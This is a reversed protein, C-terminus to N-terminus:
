GERWVEVYEGAPLYKAEKSWCESVSAEVKVPLGYGVIESMSDVMIQSIDAVVKKSVKGEDEPVEVIVEDHVFGVVKWGADILRYVAATAGDAALGQFPTNKHETYYCYSRVRGTRLVADRRLILRELDDGPCLQDIRDKTAYFGVKRLGLARTLESEYGKGRLLSFLSKWVNMEFDVNYDGGDRKGRGTIIRRVVAPVWAENGLCRQVEQVERNLGHALVQWMDEDLYKGLEPYVERILKNRLKAAEDVTMEVGYQLKAYQQLNIPGLGGPTGFNIAKAAQRHKGYEDPREKKWGLFDEYGVGLVLAATYAHPDRGTRLVDGLVSSGFRDLLVSALTVMEIAAYDAIVFAHGPRARFMHRFRNHKPTNQLSPKYASTRGTTKPGDYRPHISETHTTLQKTWTYIKAAEEFDLMADILPHVGRREEWCSGALSVSGKDTMPIPLDNAQCIKVLEERILGDSLAPTGSASVKRDGAKASGDKPGKVWRKVLQPIQVEMRGLAEELADWTLQQWYELRQTDVAIGNRTVQALAWNSRLLLHHSLPGWAPTIPLKREQVLRDVAPLMVKGVQHTAISDIVAYNFFGQEIKPSMLNVGILEGYRLRYPDEKNVVWTHDLWVRAIQNLPRNRQVPDGLALLVLRDLLMIDWVRGRRILRRLVNAAADACSDRLTQETVWLDFSANQMLFAAGTADVERILAPIQDPHVVAQQRGDCMTALVGVPVTRALDDVNTEWDLAVLPGNIRGDWRRSCVWPRGGAYVTFQM